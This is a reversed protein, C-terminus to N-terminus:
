ARVEATAESLTLFAPALGCAAAASALAAVNTEFAAASSAIMPHATDRPFLEHPHTVLVAQRHSPFWTDLVPKLIDPHYAPNLYRLVVSTDYPAPVPAVSMPMELIPLAPSGPVRYDAVSPRYPARPTISWDKATDWPYVPRPVASSDVIFGHESLVRMTANTHFAWGMRAAKMGLARATPAYRALEAAVAEGDTNQRWEGGHRAYSHPHWGIEHGAAILDALRAHADTYARTPDGFRRGVGDDLRALWTVKWAPHRSLVDLLPDLAAGYEDIDAGGALHDVLDFDITLFIAARRVREGM